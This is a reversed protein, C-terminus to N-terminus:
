HLRVCASWLAPDSVICCFAAGLRNLKNANSGAFVARPKRAQQWESSWTTGCWGCQVKVRLSPRCAARRGSARLSRHLRVCASWLAPDSVTCSNCRWAPWRFWLLAALRHTILFFLAMWFLGNFVKRAQDTSKGSGQRRCSLAPTPRAASETAGQEGALRCRASCTAGSHLGQKGRVANGRLLWWRLVASCPADTSFFATSSCAAAGSSWGSTRRRTGSMMTWIIPQRQLTTRRWPRWCARRMWAGSPCRASSGVRDKAAVRGRHRANIAM